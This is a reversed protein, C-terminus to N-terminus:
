GSAAAPATPAVSQRALANLVEGDPSGDWRRLEISEPIVRLFTPEALWTGPNAYVGGGPARELAVFHSHGLIVLEPADPAALYSLAIRRLGAGGDRARTTRSTKSSLFAIRTALDPPLWRFARVALPNRLLVNRLARYRRDEIVRLGDGHEVRAPWGALTGIWPGVHFDAGLDQRVIDGGWCDHNGAIWLVPVGADHLDALAALVRFAARPVVTQWEFWFEFLDGNILLSLPRGALAEARRAELFDLLTRDLGAAADAGIHTDAIVYCPAALV